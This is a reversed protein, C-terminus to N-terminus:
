TSGDLRGRGGFLLQTVVLLSYHDVCWVLRVTHTIFGAAFRSLIHRPVVLIIGLFHRIFIVFATIACVRLWGAHGNLLFLLQIFKGGEM